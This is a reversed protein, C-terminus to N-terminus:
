KAAGTLLADLKRADDAVSTTRHELQDLQDLQDLQQMPSHM